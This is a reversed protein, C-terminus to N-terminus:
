RPRKLSVDEDNKSSLDSINWDLEAQRSRKSTNSLSAKKEEEAASGRAGAGDRWFATGSRGAQPPSQPEQDEEDDKSRSEVAPRRGSDRSGRAEIGSVKAFGPITAKPLRAIDRM